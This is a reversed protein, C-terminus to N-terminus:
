SAKRARVTNAKRAAFAAKGRASRERLKKNAELMVDQARPEPKMGPTIANLTYSCDPYNWCAYFTGRKGSRAQKEVMQGPPDVCEPCAVGVPVGARFECAKEERRVCDIYPGYPGNKQVTAAGCRPCDYGTVTPQAVLVPEGADNLPMANKCEPYRPCALFKGNRGWKIVMNAEGCVNCLFDTEEQQKEASGKAKEIDKEFASWFEKVVDVYERKGEAIEDLDEEMASTFGTDVYRGLHEVLMDNVLFGLEMPVLARGEKRVYDRKQVTQVITAYTSPRGIGLEELAKVLSAETYRPPPETFHQRGDVSRRVLAEGEALEPLNAEADEDEEGAERENADIGYVALHGAFVLQQANARFTGRLATGERAEIEVAVTSFRADAMQSALFRQWILQYVRFQEASLYRRVADPTRAPDTPRIAEHAEQAGKSRTTFVRERAPVFDPGWRGSIYSRAEGRAVTSINLSDTRMYTILGVPGSGVDVGEYLQQAVSMARSAGMGLRNNAAQQFTSTTFPPAASKSRQGKKVSSVSFTSRNFTAVLADAAAQDPIAPRFEGTGPRISRGRELGPLRALEATFGAGAPALTGGQALGASITWYETATFNRILKERDVILRLAVSQVRGASAAKSVKGQVFWTLPFGILRDLVRRTQQADVLNMDLEGPHRFADEIAPKTIEHFVVRSTKEPPIGAAERIHWSIAEGERDPDTSLYVRDAAKAATAIEDIVDNKDVGRKKDKVVVYKPRFSEFDEVGYGYNPLDRVHGVSAIVRYDSGLINEVTRAKAPSEVIVLNRARGRRAPADSAPASSRASM